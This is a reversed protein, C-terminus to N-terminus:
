SRTFQEPARHARATSPFDLIRASFERRYVYLGIHKFHAASEDALMRFRVVRFYIADGKLDTVM